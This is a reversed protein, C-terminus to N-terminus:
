NPRSLLTQEPDLLIKRALAPASVRFLSEHGEAFVQQLFVPRGAVVAYLPVATV